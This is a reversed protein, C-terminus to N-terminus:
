NDVQWGDHRTTIFPLFVFRNSSCHINIRSHNLFRINQRKLIALRAIRVLRDLDLLSEDLLGALGFCFRM